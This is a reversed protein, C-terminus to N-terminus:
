LHCPMIIDEEFFILAVITLSIIAVVQLIDRPISSLYYVEAKYFRIKSDIEFFEKHM